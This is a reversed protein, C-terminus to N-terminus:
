EESVAASHLKLVGVHGTVSQTTDDSLLANFWQYHYQVCVTILSLAVAKIQWTEMLLRVTDDAAQLLTHNNQQM